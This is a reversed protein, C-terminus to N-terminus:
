IYSALNRFTLIVTGNVGLDELYSKGEPKGVLGRDAGRRDGGTSAILGAWRKRRGKTV